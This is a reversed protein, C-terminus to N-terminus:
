RDSLGFLQGGNQLIDAGPPLESIQGLTIADALVAVEALPAQRDAKGVLRLISGFSVVLGNVKSPM